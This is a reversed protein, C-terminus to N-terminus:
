ERDHTLFLWRYRDTLEIEGSDIGRITKELSAIDEHFVFDINNYADLQDVLWMSPIRGSQLNLVFIPKHEAIDVEELSGVTFSGDVGLVMIDCQAAMSQGLRRIMNNRSKINRIMDESHVSELAMRMQVQKPGDIDDAWSPKQLPDWIRVGIDPLSLKGALKNRWNTSNKASEIPGSLYIRAGRLKNM